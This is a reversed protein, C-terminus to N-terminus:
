RRGHDGVNTQLKQPFESIFDWANAMKCAHIIKDEGVNMNGFRINELITGSFLIDDQLVMGMQSRLCKLDYEKANIGDILLDGSLPDYFRPILDILTSKGGGSLGVFKHANDVKTEVNKNQFFIPHNTLM